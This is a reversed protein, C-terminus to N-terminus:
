EEKEDIPNSWALLCAISRDGLWDVFNRELLGILSRSFSRSM